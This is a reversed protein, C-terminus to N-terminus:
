VEQQTSMANTLQQSSNQTQNFTLMLVCINHKMDANNCQETAMAMICYGWLRALDYGNSHSKFRAMATARLGLWQGLVLELWQEQGLDKCNGQGSFRAM